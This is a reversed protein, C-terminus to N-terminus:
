DSGNGLATLQEFVRLMVVACLLVGDDAVHESNLLDILLAICREYALNAAEIDGRHRAAFSM